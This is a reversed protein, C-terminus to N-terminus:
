PIDVSLELCIKVGYFILMLAHPVLQKATYQLHLFIRHSPDLDRCLCYWVCREKTSRHVILTPSDTEEDVWTFVLEDSSFFNHKSVSSECNLETIPCKEQLSIVSAGRTKSSLLQSSNSRLPSNASQYHLAKGRVAGTTSAPVVEKGRVSSTRIRTCPVANMVFFPGAGARQSM